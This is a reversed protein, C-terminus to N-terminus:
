PCTIDVSLDSTGVENYAQIEYHVTQGALLAITEAFSTTNAPFETVKEGNRLVRYGTENDANDNWNLTIDAKGGYCYFTWGNKPFTAPQPGGGLPTPPATVTPVAALNGSPTIFEGSLWCEGDRTSVVWYNPSYFGVVKVSELPMIQTVREYSTGPGKRCNTVDQVSVMPQSLTPTSPLQTTAPRVAPATPSALPTAATDLAAQVTMAAATSIEQDTAGSAPLNCASLLLGIALVLTLIKKMIEEV